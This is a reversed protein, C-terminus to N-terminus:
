EYSETFRLLWGDPDLILFEKGYLMKNDMRYEYDEIGRFIPYGCDAARKHIAGVSKVSMSINMGRGFPYEPKATEWNGNYKELMIQNGELQIFAFDREPREYRIRFGIDLYFHLSKKFDTVSLEPILANFKMM